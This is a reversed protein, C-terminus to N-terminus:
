IKSGMTARWDFLHGVVTGVAAELVMWGSTVSCDVPIKFSMACLNLAFVM